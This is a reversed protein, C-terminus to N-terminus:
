PPNKSLFMNVAPFPMYWISRYFFTSASYSAVFLSAAVLSAALNSLNRMLASFPLLADIFHSALPQYFRFYAKSYLFADLLSVYFLLPPVFLPLTYPPGERSSSRNTLRRTHKRPKPRPHKWVYPLLLLLPLSTYLFHLGSLSCPWECYWLFLAIFDMVLFPM